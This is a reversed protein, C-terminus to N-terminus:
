HQIIPLFLNHAAERMLIIGDLPQLFVRDVYSGDNYRSLSRLHLADAVCPAGQCNIRVYANDAPALPVVALTHWEDGGTTQDLTATAIM